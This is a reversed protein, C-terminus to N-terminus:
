ERHYVAETLTQWSEGDPSAAMQFAYQDPESLDYVLRSHGGPDQGVFTLLGDEYQGRLENPPFGVSDFWHLVYHQEGEDWRFLNHARYVVEGDRWQALDQILVFGNLAIQNKILGLAVTGEPTWESPSIKEEGQWTGVFKKLVAHAESLRPMEM